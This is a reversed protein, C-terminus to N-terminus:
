ARRSSRPGARSSGSACTRTTRCRRSRTGAVTSTGMYEYVAAPRAARRSGTRPRHTTGRREPRCEDAHDGEAYQYVTGPTGGIPTWPATTYDQAGLDHLLGARGLGVPLGARRRRRGCVRHRCRRQRGPPAPPTGSSSTLRSVRRLRRRALGSRRALPDAGVEDSTYHRALRLGDAIRVTQGFSISRREPTPASTPQSSTTSSARSSRPAVTARRSRRPSSSRM